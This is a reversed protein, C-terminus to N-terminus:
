GVSLDDFADALDDGAGNSAAYRKIFRESNAIKFVYVYDVVKYTYTKPNNQVDYKGTEATMTAPLKHVILSEPIVKRKFPITIREFEDGEDKATTIQMLLANVYETGIKEDMKDLLPNPNGEDGDEDEAVADVNQKTDGDFKPFEIELSLGDRAANHKVSNTFVDILSKPRYKVGVYDVEM